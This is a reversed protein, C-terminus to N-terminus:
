FKQKRLFAPIEFDEEENIDQDFLQDSEKKEEEKTEASSEELLHFDQEESFLKPTQEEENNESTLLASNNEQLNNREIYSASEISVGSPIDSSVKEEETSM